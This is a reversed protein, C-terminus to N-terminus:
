APVKVGQYVMYGIATIGGLGVVYFIWMPIRPRATQGVITMSPLEIPQPTSPVPAASPSSPVAPQPGAPSGSPVVGAPLPGPSSTAIRRDRIRALWTDRASGVAGGNTRWWAPMDAARSAPLPVGPTGALWLATTWATAPGWHGDVALATSAQVAIAPSAGPTAILIEQLESRRANYATQYATIASTPAPGSAFRSLLDYAANIQAEQVDLARSASITM